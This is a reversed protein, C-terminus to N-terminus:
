GSSNPPPRRPHPPPCAPRPPALGPRPPTLRALLSSHARAPVKQEIFTDNAAWILAQSKLFRPRLNRSSIETYTSIPHYSIPPNQRHLKHLATHDVRGVRLCLRLQQWPAARGHASRRCRDQRHSEVSTSVNHLPTPLACHRDAAQVGLPPARSTSETSRAAPSPAVSMSSARVM